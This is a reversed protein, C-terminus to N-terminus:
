NEGSRRSSDVVGRLKVFDILKASESRPILARRPESDGLNSSEMKASVIGM